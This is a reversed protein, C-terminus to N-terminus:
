KGGRCILCDTFVGRNKFYEGCKCKSIKPNGAQYKDCLLAQGEQHSEFAQTECTRCIGFSSIDKLYKKVGCALCHKGTELM